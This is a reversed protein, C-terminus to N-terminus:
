HELLRTLRIEVVGYGLCCDPVTWMNAIEDKLKIETRVAELRDEDLFTVMVKKVDNTESVFAPLPWKARCWKDLVGLSQWEGKILGLDGFKGVLVANAPNIDAFDKGALTALKPGFFYGFATGEKDARAIVGRAYGGARLPIGFVTGEALNSKSMLKVHTPRRRGGQSDLLSHLGFV